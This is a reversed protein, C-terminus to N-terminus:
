RPSWRGWSGLDFNELIHLEEILCAGGSSPSPPAYVDYLGRYRAHLPRREVAEYGALDKATILGKGREMERVIDAAIPGTYFAEAGDRALITLTRALDPQILV